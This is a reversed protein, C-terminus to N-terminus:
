QWDGEQVTEFVATARRLEEAEKHSLWGAFDRLAKERNKVLGLKEDVAEIIFATKTKGNKAAAKKILNEKQVPIRLSMPMAFV